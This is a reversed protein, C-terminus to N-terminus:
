RNNFYFDHIQEKSFIQENVISFLEGMLLFIDSQSYSKEGGKKHNFLNIYDFLCVIQRGTVQGALRAKGKGGFQWKVIPKGDKDKEYINSEEYARGYITELTELEETLLFQSNILQKANRKVQVLKAQKKKEEKTLMIPIDLAFGQNNKLIKYIEIGDIGNGQLYKVMRKNRQVQPLPDFPEEWRAIFKNNQNKNM